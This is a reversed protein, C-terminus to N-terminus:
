SRGRNTQLLYPIKLFNSKVKSKGKLVNESWKFPIADKLAEKTSLTPRPQIFFDKPFKQSRKKDM